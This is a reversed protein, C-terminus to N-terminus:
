PTSTPSPVPLDGITVRYAITNTPGNQCQFTSSLDDYPYTYATPCAQKLNALWPQILEAWADNSSTCEGNADVGTVDSPWLKWLATSGYDPNNPDTACGCCAQTVSASYCSAANAGVCGFLNQLTTTGLYSHGQGIQDQCDLPGVSQGVGTDTGCLDDATWWGGFTGCETLFPRGGEIPVSQEGCYPNPDSCDTDSICQCAYWTYGGIDVGAPQCHGGQGVCDSDSQCDTVVFPPKVSATVNPACTGHPPNGSCYWNSPCDANTNCNRVSHLLLAEPAPTPAPTATASPTPTPTAFSPPPPPLPVASTDIYNAFNWHCAKTGTQAGPAECWYPTPIASPRATPVGIPEMEITANAGNILTVDYYDTANSQLTFEAQVAPNSPGVGAVCQSNPVPTPASTASPSAAPPPSCDGETCQTGGQVGTLCGTRAFVGGSASIGSPIVTPSGNPVNYTITPPAFCFDAETVAGGAFEWNWTSPDAGDNLKSPNPFTYFCDNQTPGAQPNPFANVGCSKGGAASCLKGAADPVSTGPCALVGEAPGGCDCSTPTYDAPICVTLSKDANEVVCQARLAGGVTGLWVQSSGTYVVDFERQGPSCVAVPTPTPTPTSTPTPTTTPSPSPSPAITPTPKPPPTSTPAPTKTPSPSPQPTITTTPKPTPTKTATSTPAPTSTATPATTPAATQTPNLTPQVTSPRDGRFPDSSDRGCASVSLLLACVFAVGWLGRGMMGM